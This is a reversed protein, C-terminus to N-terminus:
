VESFQLDFLRRYVGQKALLDEHSGQEVIRGQDMVIIKDVHQVTSLRHAILISTRGQTITETAAKILQESESDIASTAEDLIL